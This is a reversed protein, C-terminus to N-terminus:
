KSESDENYMEKLKQLLVDDETFYAIDERVVNILLQMLRLDPYRKWISEIESLMQIIRAPDRM